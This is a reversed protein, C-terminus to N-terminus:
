SGSSSGSSSSSSTPLGEIYVATLLGSDPDYGFSVTYTKGSQVDNYIENIDSTSTGSTQGAAYEQSEPAPGSKLAIKKSDDEAGLNHSRVEKILSKVNSGRQKGMYNEFTQNYANIQDKSMDLSDTITDSVGSFVFMGIGIISIALLIAGAIILAKSANEM